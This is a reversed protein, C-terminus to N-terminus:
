MGQTNNMGWGNAAPGRTTSQVPVPHQGLRKSLMEASAQSTQPLYVLISCNGFISSRENPDDFQMVDQVAVLGAVRAQRAVALFSQIDVRSVSVVSKPLRRVPRARNFAQGQSRPGGHTVKVCLAAVSQRCDDKATM